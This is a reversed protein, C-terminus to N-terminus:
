SELCRKLRQLGRRIWSKVTGIATNLTESLEEHTYGECFAMMVAQRPAAELRDLCRKLAQAEAGRLTKELPGPEPDPPLEHEVLEDDISVEPRGRRLLDLARNRVITTMWTMPASQAAQYDGAHRWINVFADQLIEEAWDRRRVLKLAIAFLKPSASDYLRAFAQQDGLASRALLRALPDDTSVATSM